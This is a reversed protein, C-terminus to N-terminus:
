RGVLIILFAASLLAALQLWDAKRMALDELLRVEGRFGRAQMALHVESSLSFTRDLLAGSIAAASSRQADETLPALLRARRAEFLHQATRLLVFVYRYTMQLIVIITAPIRLLRLARLLRQWPTTLILITLLTASTEARLILFAASSLGQSSIPWGLGPLIAIPSGAVLFPAPAALVGTFFLVALWVRSFAPRLKLKTLWALLIILLFLAASLWLRHISITAVILAGCGALKVRPDLHQWVGPTRAGEEALLAKESFAIFSAITRELFSPRVRSASPFRGTLLSALLTLLIIAGVGLGAAVFYGFGASRIFPPAYEPLPASWLASLRALGEPATGPAAHQGSAAAIQSRTEANKFDAPHWEGWASGAALIGLPTLVLLLALILWLKRASPWSFPLRTATGDSLEDDPADPATKRLMEPDARQLYAVLGASLVLEALGAFTLHGLMMAPIAISLSYPAYLPVGASNHFFIPQIGFEIAACLAACNIAMYGALGAAIIRRPALLSANRAVLRYVVYAVFSGVIAMNFCNAGYATIGGDGFLLAQILLATSIALLSIWPGLVISAVGMGVAHGTTGGPLPLNFMMVVFSFASFVSLLPVTRTTLVRSVRKLAVYWFPAAGAYFGACTSPSLYGDPIHM